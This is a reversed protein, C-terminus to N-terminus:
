QTAAAVLRAGGTIEVGRLCLHLVPSTQDINLVNQKDDPLTLIVRAGEEAVIWIPAEATGSVEIHSTREVSYTGAAVVLQDGTQLAAVANALTDNQTNSHKIVRKPAISAWEPAYSPESAHLATLSAILLATIFILTSKM